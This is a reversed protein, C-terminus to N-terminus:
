HLGGSFFRFINLMAPGLLVILMAPLLFLVMPFIMKVPLKQAMEEARMSRKARLQEAVARLAESMESGLKESQVLIASFTRIDDVGTRDAVGRLGEGLTSAATLEASLQLLQEGMIRGHRESERGVIRISAMLGLGCEVCVVLLDILDPIERRIMTQRRNAMTRVCFIPVAYGAAGGILMLFLTSAEYLNAVVYGVIALVIMSLLRLLQFIKAAGTGYFGAYQLTQVLKEVAPKELNPDPMRRQAFDMLKGAVGQSVLAADPASEEGIRFKVAMDDLRQRLPRDNRDVAFYLTACLGFTLLFVVILPLFEGASM